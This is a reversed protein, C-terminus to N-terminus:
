AARLLEIRIAESVRSKFMFLGRGEQSKPSPIMPTNCFGKTTDLFDDIDLRQQTHFLYAKQAVLLKRCDVIAASELL